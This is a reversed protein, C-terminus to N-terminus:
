VQFFGTLSSPAHSRSSGWAAVGPYWWGTWIMVLAVATELTLGFVVAAAIATLPTLIGVM